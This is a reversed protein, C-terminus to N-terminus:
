LAAKTEAPPQRPGGAKSLPVYVAGESNNIPTTRAGWTVSAKLASLGPNRLAM